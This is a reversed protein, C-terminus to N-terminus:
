VLIGSQNLTSASYQTVITLMMVDNDDHDNDGEDYDDDVYRVKMDLIRNNFMTVIM